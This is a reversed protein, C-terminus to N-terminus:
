KKTSRQKKVCLPLPRVVKYKTIFSHDRNLSIEVKKGALNSDISGSLHGTSYTATGLLTEVTVSIYCSNRVRGRIVESKNVVRTVKGTLKM